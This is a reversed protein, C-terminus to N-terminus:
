LTVEFQNPEPEEDSEDVDQQCKQHRDHEECEPCVGVISVEAESNTGGKDGDPEDGEREPLLRPLSLSIKLEEM